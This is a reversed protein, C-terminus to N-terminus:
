AVRKRSSAVPIRKCSTWTMKKWFRKRQVVVDAKLPFFNTYSKGRRHHRKRRKSRKRHSKAEEEEEEDEVEDVIFGDRIKKEEEEDDEDEESSDDSIGDMGVGEGEDDVEEGFGQMPDDVDEARGKVTMEDNRPSNMTTFTITFVLNGKNSNM